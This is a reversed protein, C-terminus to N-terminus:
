NKSKWVRAIYFCSLGGVFFAIGPILFWKPFLTIKKETIKVRDFVRVGENVNEIYRNGRNTKFTTEIPALRLMIKRRFEELKLKDEERNSFFSISDSLRDFTSLDEGPQLVGQSRYLYDFETSDPVFCSAIFASGIMLSILGTLLWRRMIVIQHKKYHYVASKIVPIDSLKNLDEQFVKEVLHSIDISYIDRIRIFIDDSPTSKGTELKSLYSQEIGIKAAADPQTWGLETRKYKLYHGFQM